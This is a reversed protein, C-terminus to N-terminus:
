PALKWPRPNYASHSPSANYRSRLEEAPTAQCIYICIGFACICPLRSFGWLAGLPKERRGQLGEVWKRSGRLRGVPFPPFLSSPTGVIDGARPCTPTTERAPRNLPFPIPHTPAPPRPFVRPAEHPKGRGGANANFNFKGTRSAVGQSASNPLPGECKQRGGNIM